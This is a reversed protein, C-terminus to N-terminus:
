DYDSGGAVEMLTERLRQRANDDLIKEWDIPLWVVDGIDGTTTDTDIDRM